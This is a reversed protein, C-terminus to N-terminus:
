KARRGGSSGAGWLLSSIPYIMGSGTYRAAYPRSRNTNLLNIAVSSLERWYAKRTSCCRTPDKTCIWSDARAAPVSNVKLVTLLYSFCRIRFTLTGLFIPEGLRRIFAKRSDLFDEYAEDTTILYIDLDSWEDASGAALSGGLFAAVVREDQECAAVFRRLVAQQEESEFSM